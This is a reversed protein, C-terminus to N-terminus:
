DRWLFCPCAQKLTETEQHHPWSCTLVLEEQNIASHSVLTSPSVPVVLDQVKAECGSKEGFSHADSRLSTKVARSSLSM